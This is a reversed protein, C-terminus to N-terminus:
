SGISDSVNATESPHDEEKRRDDSMEVAIAAAQEAPVGETRRAYEEEAREDGVRQEVDEVQEQQGPLEVRLEEILMMVTAAVPLALLAGLIGMLMGGTLLAFLVVSSPLRLARGYIRPVLVRSEFEEYALMVLLVVAVVIPGRALAVLVMPILALFGGIYPLLDAVGAFVALAVANPV